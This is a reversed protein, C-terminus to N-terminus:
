VAGKSRSLRTKRISGNPLAIRMLQNPVLCVEDPQDSIFNQEYVHIRGRPLSREEDIPGGSAM